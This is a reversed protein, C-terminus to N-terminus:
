VVSKRDLSPTSQGETMATVAQGAGAACVQGARPDGPPFVSACPQWGPLNQLSSITQTQPAVANVTFSTSVDNGNKDTAIVEVSHSGPDMWLLADVTNYFTFYDGTGDIYVRMHDIPNM